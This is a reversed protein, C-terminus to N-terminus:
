RHIEFRYAVLHEFAQEDSRLYQFPRWEECDIVQLGGMDWNRQDILVPTIAQELDYARPAASTRFRLEVTPYRLFGEFPRTAFGGTIYAGIVADTGRQVPKKGEGPALLGHQPELWLPPLPGPTDPERVLGQAVLHDSLANLLRPM